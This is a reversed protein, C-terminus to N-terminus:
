GRRKGQGTGGDVAGIMLAVDVRGHEESRQMWLHVNEVLGLQIPNGNEGPRESHTPENGDLTAVLFRRHSGDLGTRRRNPGAVREETERFARSAPVVLQQREIVSAPKDV